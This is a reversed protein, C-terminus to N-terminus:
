PMLLRTNMHRQLGSWSLLPGRLHDAETMFDDRGHQPSSICCLHVGTLAREWMAKTILVEECCWLMSVPDCDVKWQYVNSKSPIKGRARKMNASHAAILTLDSSM